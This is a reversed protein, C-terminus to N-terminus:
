EVFDLYTTSLGSLTRVYQAHCGLSLMRMQSQPPPVTSIVVYVITATSGRNFNSSSYTPTPLACGGPLFLYYVRSIRKMPPLHPEVYISRFRCANSESRNPEANSSTGSACFPGPLSNIFHKSPTLRSKPLFSSRSKTSSLGSLSSM